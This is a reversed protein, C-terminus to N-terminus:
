PLEELTFGLFCVVGDLNFAAGWFLEAIDSGAKTGGAADFV